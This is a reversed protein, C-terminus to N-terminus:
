CRSSTFFFRDKRNLLADSMALETRTSSAFTSSSLELVLLDLRNLQRKIRVGAQKEMPKPVMRNVEPAPATNRDMGARPFDEPLTKM